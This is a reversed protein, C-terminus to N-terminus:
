CVFTFSKKKSDGDNRVVSDCTCFSCFPNRQQYLQFPHQVGADKQQLIAHHQILTRHCQTQDGILYASTKKTKTQDVIPYSSTDKLLKRIPLGIKETMVKVDHVYFLVHKFINEVGNHIHLPLCIVVDLSSQIYSQETVM